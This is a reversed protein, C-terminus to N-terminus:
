ATEGEALPEAEEPSFYRFRGYWQHLDAGPDDEIVVALHHSGDVDLLVAEVRAAKGDLFMDQPDTGRLRPRLRVRSGRRVLEGGVMVSNNEPAVAADAEPNWWPVQAASARSTRGGAGTERARERAPDEPGQEDAPTASTPDSALLVRTQESVPTTRSAPGPVRTTGHLRALVDPPMSEIRDLIAAARPDTARAERKEADTLTLTRLSLIEDIEAADHLDGPSEPAVRPHDYLLIPSSLVVETGGQVGIQAGTEAGVQAGPQGGIQAGALVPFARVNACTRAAAEAEEPPELLSVFCGGPVALLLHTAILAHRLAEDRPAEPPPTLGANEVRTRLKFLPGPVDCPAMSLTLSAHLPWAEWRIRGIPSGQDDLLPEMDSDGPLEVEFRRGGSLLEGVSVQVDFERPIAEDFSLATRAGTEVQDVARHGGDPLREEVSRHRLHLFRLRCHVIVESSARLLCETQQWWSEASGAVGKDTDGLGHARAWPEPLLVGFQWRVRNKASSRRYPYLLYGEYLIADAVAQADQFGPVSDIREPAM